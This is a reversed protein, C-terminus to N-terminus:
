KKIICIETKYGLKKAHNAIEQHVQNEIENDNQYSSTLEVGASVKGSEKEYISVRGVLVTDVQIALIEHYLSQREINRWENVMALIDSDSMGVCLSQALINNEGEEFPRISAKKNM